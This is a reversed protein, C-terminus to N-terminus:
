NILEIFGHFETTNTKIRYFYTGPSLQNGWQDRGNWYSIQESSDYVTNGWRNTIVCSKYPFNLTFYENINDGNATIVNPIEVCDIPNIYILTDSTCGYTSENIIELWFSENIHFPTNPNYPSGNIAYSNSPVSDLLLFTNRCPSINIEEDPYSFDAIYIDSHLTDIGCRTMLISNITYSGHQSFTYNMSFNCVSDLLTGSSHIIEWKISDIYSSDSLILTIPSDVCATDPVSIKVGMTNYNPLGLTCEQDELYIVSDIYNCNPYALNPSTIAGLCSHGPRAIYINGDPASKLQGIFDTGEYVLQMSNQIAAANPLSVDFQYIKSPESNPPDRVFSIYLFQGNPSFECGYAGFYSCFVTDIPLEIPNSLIGTCNDFRLIEAKNCVTSVYAITSNDISVAVEGIACLGSGPLSWGVNSVVPITDLGDKTIKYVNWADSFPTRHTIVWKDIRNGALVSVLKETTPKYLETPALTTFDGAYNNLSVDYESYELGWNINGNFNTTFVFYRDQNQPRPVILVSQTSSSSGNLSQSLNPIHNGNIIGVGNSYFLLNGESDSISASGENTYLMSNSSAVPFGLNFDLMCGNGFCWINNEGQCGGKAPLLVSAIIILVILNISRM